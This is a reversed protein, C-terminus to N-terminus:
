RRPLAVFSSQTAKLIRRRIQICKFATSQSSLYSCWGTYAKQSLLTLHMNLNLSWNGVTSTIRKAWTSITQRVRRIIDAVSAESHDKWVTEVLKFIELNDRLRRDYCFLRTSKRKKVDLTTVLPSSWKVLSIVVICILINTYM